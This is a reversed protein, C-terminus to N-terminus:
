QDLTKLGNKKLLYNVEMYLMGWYYELIRAETSVTKTERHWRAMLELIRCNEFDINFSSPLGMMWDVFTKQWNGYHKLHDGYEKKFTDRLFQLKEIETSADIGYGSADICNLIYERIEEKNRRAKKTRIEM